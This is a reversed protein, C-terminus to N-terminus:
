LKALSRRMMALEPTKVMIGGMALMEEKSLKLVRRGWPALIEEGSRSFFPVFHKVTGFEFYKAYDVSSAGTFGNPNIETFISNLLLGTDVADMSIIEKVSAEWVMAKRAIFLELRDKGIECPDRITCKVIVKM